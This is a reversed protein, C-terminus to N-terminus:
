LVLIKWAYAVPVAFLLADIRDLIGGHGPLISGSDKIGATRKLESEFLDGAQGALGMLVVLVVTHLVPLGPIFLLKFILGVVLNAGLGGLAGEITKGPSIAANLKRRGKYTGVYFSGVDGLFVVFLVFFLWALGQPQARLLVLMSLGLGIYAVGQVQLAVTEMVRPDKKYAQISLLAAAALGLFVFFPLGAAPLWAVAMIMVVGAAIGSMAVPSFIRGRDARFVIFFYEYLGVAAVISIFAAFVPLSAWFIFAILLPVAIISTIWRKLHM